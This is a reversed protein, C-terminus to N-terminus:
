SLIKMGYTERFDFRTGLILVLTNIRFNDRSQNKEISSFCQVTTIPTLIENKREASM